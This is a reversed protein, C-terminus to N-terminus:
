ELWHTSYSKSPFIERYPYFTLEGNISKLICPTIEINYFQFISNPLYTKEFLGESKVVEFFINDSSNFKKKARNFSSKTSYSKLVGVTTLIYVKVNPNGRKLQILTSDIEVICEKCNVNNFFVIYAVSLDKLSDTLNIMNAQKNFLSTSDLEITDEQSFSYFSLLVFFIISNLRM